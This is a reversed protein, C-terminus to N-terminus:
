KLVDLIKYLKKVAEGASGDYNNVIISFIYQRGDKATHYGAFARAGGISGSKMKMGNYEPLANYFSNFWSRTKAFQLAKVEADATVRNQPSLGSGDMIHLASKEIGNSNWFDRILEVGKDTAGFGNKEYAIVKAFAEGFLNVSRRLFWYNITDATPSLLQGLTKKMVPVPRKNALMQLYLTFSGSVTIGDQKLQQELAYAFQQPANPMAGAIVFPSDNASVPVTGQTFGQLGYPPLYIYANDGSGNKGTTVQNLLAPIQLVPATGVLVTSDGEKKGTRIRLDYQNERWNIGWIGAGYYNGIDDWIWGGPIPQVSFACDNIYVNGDIRRIGNDRLIGAIKRLVVEEKTETWRWSGLTPDGFGAIHLNGKLVSSDIVGDYGIITKFRYEKGLLELVAVSTFLKQTSAAALGTQANHEYVPKGTRADLVSFGLIAHRMQADAEFLNVAKGLQTAVPQAKVSIISWLLTILLVLRNM